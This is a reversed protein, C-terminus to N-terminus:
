DIHLADRISRLEFKTGTRLVNLYQEFQQRQCKIVGSRGFDTTGIPDYLGGGRNLALYYENKAPNSPYETKYCLCQVNTIDNMEQGGANYGQTIGRDHTIPNGQTDHCTSAIDEPSFTGSVQHPLQAPNNVQVSEKHISYGASQLANVVMNAQLETLAKIPRQTRTDIATTAVLLAIIEDRNNM